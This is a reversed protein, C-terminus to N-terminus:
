FRGPGRSNRPSRDNNNQGVGPADRNEGPDFMPLIGLFHPVVRVVFLVMFCAFVFEPININTGPIHFSTAIRWGSSFLASLVLLFDSDVQLM